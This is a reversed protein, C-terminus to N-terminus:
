AVHRRLLRRSPSSGDRPDEAFAPAATERPQVLLKSRDIKPAAAEGATVASGALAPRRPAAFLLAAAVYSCRLAALRISTM